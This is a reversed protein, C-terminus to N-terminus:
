DSKLLLSLTRAADKTERRRVSGKGLASFLPAHTDRPRGRLFDARLEREERRFRGRDLRQELVLFIHRHLFARPTQHPKDPAHAAGDDSARACRSVHVGESAGRWFM